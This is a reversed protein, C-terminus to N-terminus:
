KSEKVLGRWRDCAASFSSMYMRAGLRRYWRKGNWYLLDGNVFFGDGNYLCTVQYWGKRVPKHQKANFWPTKKM